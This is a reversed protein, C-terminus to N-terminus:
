DLDEEFIDEPRVRKLKIDTIDETFQKPTSQEISDCLSLIYNAFKRAEAVSCTVGSDIQHGILSYQGMQFLVADEKGTADELKNYQCETQLYLVQKYGKDKLIRKM